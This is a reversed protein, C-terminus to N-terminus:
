EYKQPTSKWFAEKSCIILNQVWFPAAPIGFQNFNTFFCNWTDNKPDQCTKTCNAVMETHEPHGQVVTKTYNRQIQSQGKIITTDFITKEVLEDFM